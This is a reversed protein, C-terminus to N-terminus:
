NFATLIETPLKPQLGVNSKKIMIELMEALNNLATLAHWIRDLLQTITTVTNDRSIGIDDIMIETSIKALKIALLLLKTSLINDVGKFILKPM